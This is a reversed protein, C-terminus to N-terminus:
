AVARRSPGVHQEDPLHGDMGVRAPLAEPQPHQVFQDFSWGSGSRGCQRRGYGFVVLGGPLQKVGKGAAPTRSQGLRRAKLALRMKGARVVGLEFRANGKSGDNLRYPSTEMFRVGRGLWRAGFVAM